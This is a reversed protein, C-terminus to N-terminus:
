ELGTFWYEIVDQTPKGAISSSPDNLGGLPVYGVTAIGTIWNRSAAVPLIANYILSQQEVDVEFDALEESLFLGDNNCGSDILRCGRSSGEASPYALAITIPKLTSRYIEYILNDITQSFGYAIQEFTPDSTESLPRDVTVYIEDILDLFPPLPDIQAGANVAWIVEGNFEERIETLLSRWEDELSEQLYSPNPEPLTPIASNGDIILSDASSIVAIKTYSLIFNRYSAFWEERWADNQTEWDFNNNIDKVLSFRPFLGVKFDQAKSQDIYNIIEYSFPTIGIEPQLLGSKQDQVWRPSFIITEANLKNIHDLAIPIASFWSPNMEPSLEVIRKFSSSKYPFVAGTVYEDSYHNPASSWNDESISFTLPKDSPEFQNSDSVLLNSADSNCPKTLCIRYSIPTTIEFPAYLIYLYNGEGLPWLRVPESWEDKKFQIYREGPYGIEPHIFTEFTIPQFAPARWSSISLELAANQDPVILQRTVLKSDGNLEANWYGDGLTFKYRFDTGTYLETTISLKGDNQLTLVPLRNSDISMSGQLDTFTNGFQVFNGALYVPAGVADGPPSVLFTVEVSKNPSLKVEAPTISGESIVAQQQFTQYHGDISYFLVNHTGPQLGDFNVLGNADSFNLQGGASVLIDPLSKGTEQDQIKVELQGTEPSFNTNEWSSLFDTVSGSNKVHYMRYRVIEGNSLKEPTESEGIKKYHYKIVSYLPISLTASWTNTENPAMEYEQQNYPLGSVEDLIVIHVTEDTSLPEPLVLNFETDIYPTSFQTLNESRDPHVTNKSTPYNCGFLIASLIVFLIFKKPRAYDMSPDVNNHKMM